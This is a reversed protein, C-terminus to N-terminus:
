ISAVDYKLDKNVSLKFINGSWYSTKIFKYEKQSLKTVVEPWV